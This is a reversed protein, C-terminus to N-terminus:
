AMVTANYESIYKSYAAFSPLQLELRNEETSWVSKWGVTSNLVDMSASSDSNNKIPILEDSGTMLKSLSVGIRVSGSLVPEDGFM